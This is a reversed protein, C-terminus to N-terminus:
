ILKDTLVQLVNEVTVQSVRVNAPQTVGAVHPTLILNPCADFVSASSRDLPENAFVDLAAGGLSGEKLAAALAAEDVIGGRATNILLAGSKMTSLAEAGILGTTTQTLPVHLSLVDAIALLEDLDCSRVNSWAPDAEPLFLDFAAIKMGLAGAAQAVAQAIAGFGLLGLTLGHIEGGAGLLSRPWDGALVDGSSAFVGRRLVLMAGIVYEVVSQTNAGTAPRVEVGKEACAELDINELGVGLRGVVRLRPAADLLSLDVRTRNRVILGDADAAERHLREPDDVLTPDYHVEVASGFAALAAENMFETIVVKKAM